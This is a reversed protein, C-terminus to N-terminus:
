VRLMMPMGWGQMGQSTVMCARFWYRKDPELGKIEYRARLSGGAWTWGKDDAPLPDACYQWLWASHRELLVHTLIVTGSHTGQKM